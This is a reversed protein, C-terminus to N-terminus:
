GADADPQGDVLGDAAAAAWSMRSLALHGRVLEDVRAADGAEIADLMEVHETNRRLLNGEDALQTLGPVRQADRLESVIDVLRRNGTRSILYLHFAKDTELYTVLDNAEAADHVQALLARATAVEEADLTGAVSAMAPAELMERVELADRLDQPSPATVRFGVGRTIEVLGKAELELIAERMPTRSAGFRSALEGMKYTTGPRMRGTLIETRLASAIQDKLNGRQLLTPAPGDTATWGGQPGGTTAAHETM